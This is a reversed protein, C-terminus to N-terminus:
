ARGAARGRLVRISAAGKPVGGAIREARLQQLFTTKGVRRMGVVATAKRPMRVRGHIRRHTFRPLPRRASDALQERYVQKLRSTSLPNM